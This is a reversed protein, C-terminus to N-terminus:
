KRLPHLLKASNKDIQNAREWFRWLSIVVQSVALIILTLDLRNFLAGLSTFVVFEAEDVFFIIRNRVWLSKFFSIKNIKAELHQRKEASRALYSSDADIRGFLTALKIYYRFMFFFCAIFGLYIFLVNNTQLYVALSLSSNIIFIKLVDLVKDFYDGINSSLNRERALQGDLDDGVYGLFIGLAAFYLHMPYQIFLSLSGATFILFSVWTVINPTIFKLNKIVFLLINALPYGFIDAWNGYYSSKIVKSKIKEAM